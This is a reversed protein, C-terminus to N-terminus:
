PACVAFENDAAGSTQATGGCQFRISPFVCAVRCIPKSYVKLKVATLSSCLAPPMIKSLM